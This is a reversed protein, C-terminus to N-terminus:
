DSREQGNNKKSTQCWHLARETVAGSGGVRHRWRRRSRERRRQRQGGWRFPTPAQNWGIVTEELNRMIEEPTRPNTGALGRRKIIGQLSEALNLWSGALPTFLPMVGNAYFWSMLDSSKHGTLNDLVLLLRLPPPRAPLTLKTKLGEQWKEWCTKQWPITKAVQTQPLGALIESLSEKLWPHLVRNASSTVGKAVVRGSAPHFLTLLKATGGRVYEHPYRQPTLTPRWHSGPM